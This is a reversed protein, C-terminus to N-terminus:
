GNLIMEELQFISNVKGSLTVFITVGENFIRIDTLRDDRQRVDSWIVKITELTSHLYM